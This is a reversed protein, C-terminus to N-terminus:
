LRRFGLRNRDQARVLILPHGLREREKRFSPIKSNVKAVDDVCRSGWEGRVKRLTPAMCDASRDWHAAPPGAKRAGQSPQLNQQQSEGADGVCPTGWEERVKRLTPAM